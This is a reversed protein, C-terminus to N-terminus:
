NSRVRRGIHKLILETIALVLRIEQIRQEVRELDFRVEHEHWPEALRVVRNWSQGEIM